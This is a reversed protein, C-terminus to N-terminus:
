DQVCARLCAGCHGVEIERILNTATLTFAKPEYHVSLEQQTNPAIDTYAGYTLMKDSSKFPKTQAAVCHTM